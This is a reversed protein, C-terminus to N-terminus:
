KFQDEREEGERGGEREAGEKREEEECLFQTNQPCGFRLAVPVELFKM